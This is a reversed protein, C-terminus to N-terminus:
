YSAFLHIPPIKELDDRTHNGIQFRRKSAACLPVSDSKTPSLTLDQFRTAAPLRSYERTNQQPGAFDHGPPGPGIEVRIENSHHLNEGPAQPTFVHICGIM